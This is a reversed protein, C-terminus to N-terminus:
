KMENLAFSLVPSKNEPDHIILPDEIQKFSDKLGDM